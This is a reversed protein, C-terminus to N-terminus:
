QALFQALNSYWTGGNPINTPDLFAESSDPWVAVTTFGIAAIDKLANPLFPNAGSGGQGEILGIGVASAPSVDCMLGLQAGFYSSPDPDCNVMGSPAGACTTPATGEGGAYDEIIAVDVAPGIQTLDIGNAGCQQIYWGGIDVTLILNHAHLASKAASLFSVYQKSDISNPEWDINWGDYDNTQAETVLWAIFTSQANSDGLFTPYDTNGGYILPILKMGAGHVQMAVQAITLGDYSGGGGTPTGSTTMTYFDPSLETFAKPTTTTVSTLTKSFSLYTPTWVLVQRGGSSGSAEVSAEPSAEAPASDAAATEAGSGADSGASSSGSSGRSSGGDSSSGGDGPPETPGAGNTGCGAAIVLAAFAVSSRIARSRM